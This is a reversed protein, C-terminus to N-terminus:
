RPEQAILSFPLRCTVKEGGDVIPEGFTKVCAVKSLGPRQEALKMSSAVPSSTGTRADKLCAEQGSCTRGGPDAHPLQPGILDDRIVQLQSDLSVLRMAASLNEMPVPGLFKLSPSM